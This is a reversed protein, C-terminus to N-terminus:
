HPLFYKIVQEESARTTNDSELVQKAMLIYRENSEIM